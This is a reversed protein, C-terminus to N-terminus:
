NRTEIHMRERRSWVSMSEGSVIRHAHAGAVCGSRAAVDHADESLGTGALFVAAQHEASVYICSIGLHCPATDDDGWAVRAPEYGLCRLGEGRRVTGICAGVAGMRACPGALPPPENRDRGM